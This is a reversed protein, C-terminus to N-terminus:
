YRIQCKGIIYMGGGIIDERKVLSKLGALPAEWLSESVKEIVMDSTEEEVEFSSNFDVESVAEVTTPVMESM